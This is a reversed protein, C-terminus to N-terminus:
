EPPEKPGGLGSPGWTTKCCGLTFLRCSQGARRGAPISQLRFPAQPSSKPKGTLHCLSKLCHHEKGWSQSCHMEQQLWSLTGPSSPWQSRQTERAVVAHLQAAKFYERRQQQVPDSCGNHLALCVRGITDSARLTARSGAAPSFLGALAQQYGDGRAFSNM